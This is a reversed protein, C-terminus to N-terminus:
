IAKDEPQLEVPCQLIQGLLMKAREVGKFSKRVFWKIPRTFSMTTNGFSPLIKYIFSTSGLHSKIGSILVVFIEKM